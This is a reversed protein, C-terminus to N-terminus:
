EYLELFRSLLWRFSHKDSKNRVILDEFYVNEFTYENLSVHDLGSAVQSFQFFLSFSLVTIQM